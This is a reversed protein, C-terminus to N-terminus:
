DGLIKPRGGNLAGLFAVIADVQAPTLKRNLQAQAMHQVAESLTGMSGDHYYPATRAVDFLPTVKFFYEQGPTPDIEFRGRDKGTWPQMLGLKQPMGGGLGRYQHCTTCGVNIFTNVGILEQSTLARDDGDLFDDWRSRTHLQRVFAGLAHAANAVGLAPETGPFVTAFRAAYDPLAALKQIAAAADAHGLHAGLSEAAAAEVTAARFDRFQAFQRSANWITPTNRTLGAPTKLGDQGHRAPDHCSACSRTGDVSWRTEHFLDRGLELQAATTAPAKQSPAEAAFMARVTAPDAATMTDGTKGAGTAPGMRFVEGTHAAFYLEGDPAKDISTFMLPWRALLIAEDIALTEGTPPLDIAWIHGSLHDCFVFAGRLDPLANGEYVHGSIVSMGRDRGYPLLAPQLELARDLKNRQHTGEVFPWGHHKGRVVYTLEENVDEGIDGAVIRGDPVFAFRWPNRFGWAWTEPPFDPNGVFPNDAPVAYPRGEDRRDIDIRLVKGRLTQSPSRGITWKGEEGDGIAIYLMGDPGFRLCGANHNDAVMPVAFLQREDVFNLTAPWGSRDVRWESVRAERRGDAMQWTYHVYAKAEAPFRPHLALGILGAEGGTFVGARDAAATPLKLAVGTEKGVRSFWRVDGNKGAALMLSGDRSFESGTSMSGRGAVPQMDITRDADQFENSVLMLTAEAFEARWEVKHKSLFQQEFLAMLEPKRHDLVLWVRGNWRVFPVLRALYYQYTQDQWKSPSDFPINRQRLPERLADIAPFLGREAPSALFVPENRRRELLTDLLTAGPAPPRPDQPAPTAPAAPTSAAQPTAAPTAEACAAAALTGALLCFWTTLRTM